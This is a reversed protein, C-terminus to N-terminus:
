VPRYALRHPPKTSYHNIRAPGAWQLHERVGPPGLFCLFPLWIHAQPSAAKRPPRQKVAQKQTRGLTGERVEKLMASDSSM